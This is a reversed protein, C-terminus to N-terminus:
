DGPVTGSPANQEVVDLFLRLTRYPEESESELFLLFDVQMDAGVWPMQWKVPIEIAQGPLLNFSGYIGVCDKHDLGWPDKVWVEVRYENATREKNTIGMIVQLTEGPQASRPFNEAKREKGLLYFETMFSDPFPALFSWAIMVGAIILIIATLVFIGRKFGSQAKWWLYPQWHLEVFCAQTGRLRVRQSTAVLAFLLTIGLEGALIPWLRLGWPLRDLLLALLSIVAVSLGLCIGLRELTNLEKIRPFLVAQLWYGPVFFVYVVGLILRIESLGPMLNGALVLIVLAAIWVISLVFDWWLILGGKEVQACTTQLAETSSVERITV